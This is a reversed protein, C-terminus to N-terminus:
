SSEGWRRSCGHHGRLHLSHPPAQRQGKLTRLTAGGSCLGYGSETVCPRVGHCTQTVADPFKLGCVVVDRPFSVRACHSGATNNVESPMWRQVRPRWKDQNRREALGLARSSAKIAGLETPVSDM